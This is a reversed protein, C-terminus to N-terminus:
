ADATNLAKFAENMQDAYEDQENGFVARKEILEDEYNKLKKASSKREDQSPMLLTLDQTLISQNKPQKM